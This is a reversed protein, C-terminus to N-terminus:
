EVGIPKIFHFHLHGINQGAHYGVHVGLDANKINERSSVNLALDLVQELSESNYLYKKDHGGEEYFKKSPILLKHWPYPTYNNNLVSFEGIDQKEEESRKCLLCSAIDHTLEPIQWIRRMKAEVINRGQRTGGSMTPTYLKKGLNEDKTFLLQGGRIGGAIAKWEGESDVILNSNNVEKDTLYTFTDEHPWPLIIAGRGYTIRNVSDYGWHNLIPFYSGDTFNSNNMLFSLMFEPKLNSVPDKYKDACLSVTRAAISALERNQGNQM